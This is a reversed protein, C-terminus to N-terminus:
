PQVRKMYKSMKSTIYVTTVVWEEATEEVVARVLMEQQLREDFYRRMFVSRAGRAAEILEPNTLAAEGEARPIERDRLNKLAHPTWRISKL